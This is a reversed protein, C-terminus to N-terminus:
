NYDIEHPSHKVVNFIRRISSIPITFDCYEPSPNLSHLTITNETQAIIQKLRVCNDWAVVWFPWQNIRFKPKWDDRDLERVLVADGRQFSKRSGDDMSDGDVIFSLYNGHHVKDVKFQRMEGEERNAILEAFEDDPTGLANYPVLPVEMLMHDGQKYFKIGHSNTIYPEPEVDENILRSVNHDIIMEGEGTLLWVRSLEPFNLIIKQIILGRPTSKLNNIYGNSVGITEEFKKQSIRKYKIFQVLRQKVTDEM